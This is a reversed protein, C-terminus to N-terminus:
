NVLKILNENSVKRGCKLDDLIEKELPTLFDIPNGEEDM